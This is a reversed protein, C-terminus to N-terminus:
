AREGDRGDRVVKKGGTKVAKRGSATPLAGGKSGKGGGGRRGGGLLASLLPLLLLLPAGMVSYVLAQVVVPDAYPALAPTARLQADIAATLEAQVQAAKARAQAALEKGQELAKAAHPGAREQLQKSLEAAKASAQAWAASAQAAAAGYAPSALVEAWKDSLQGSASRVLRAVRPPVIAEEAERLAGRLAALESDVKNLSMKCAKGASAEKRASTAESQLAALDAKLKDVAAQLKAAEAAAAAQQDQLKKLAGEAAKKDAACGDAAKKCAALDKEGAAAGGQAEGLKGECADLKKTLAGQPDPHRRPHRPNSVAPNARSRCRLHLRFWSSHRWSSSNCRFDGRCSVAEAAAGKADAKAAQLEERLGDVDVQSPPILTPSLPTLCTHM